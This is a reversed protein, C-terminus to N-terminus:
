PRVVEVQALECMEETDMKGALGDDPGGSARSVVRIERGYGTGWGMANEVAADLTKGTGFELTCWRYRANFYGGDICEAEWQSPCAPCTMTLNVVRLTFHKAVTAM